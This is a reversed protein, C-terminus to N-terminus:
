LEAGPHKKENINITSCVCFSNTDFKPIKNSSTHETKTQYRLPGYNSTQHLYMLGYTVNPYRLNSCNHIMNQAFQTYKTPMLHFLSTLLYICAFSSNCGWLTLFDLFFYCLLMIHLSAYGTQCTFCSKCSKTDFDYM